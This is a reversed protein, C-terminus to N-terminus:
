PCVALANTDTVAPAPPGPYNFYIKTTGSRVDTVELRYFVNTTAASFIWYRNNLGCGNIAKVMVEWNDASFFYFLGSGPNFFPVVQSQSEASGPAGTRHRATISFRDQLCLATATSGGCSAAVASTFYLPSNVNTGNYPGVAANPNGNLGWVAVLGPQPTTLAVNITDRIQETTRAVNWIRVEDIAGQPQVNYDFDSAIRVPNSNSTLAGPDSIDLVLEGNIYHRRRAGDFTVALHTWQGIRALGGDKLSSTGRLYSRLVPGSSGNCLGLWYTSTYGKGLISVCEGANMNSLAVWAELTIQSTPNLSANHNISIYRNSSRATTLWAGFPQASSEQPALAVLLSAVLAWGLLRLTLRAPRSARTYRSEM